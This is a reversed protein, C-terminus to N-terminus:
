SSGAPAVREVISFIRHMRTLEILQRVPPSPDVVCLRAERNRQQAQELVAVLAGLGRCDVSATRGLDVEILGPCAPLAASVELQFSAAQREGLERLDTVRVLDDTIEIKM